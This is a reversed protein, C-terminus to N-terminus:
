YIEDRFLWRQANQSRLLNLYRTRSAQLLFGDPRTCKYAYVGTEAAM